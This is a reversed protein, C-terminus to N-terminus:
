KVVSCTLRDICRRIIIHRYCFYLIPINFSGTMPFDANAQLSPPFWLFETLRAKPHSKLGPGWLYPTIIVRSRSKVTQWMVSTVHIPFSSPVVPLLTFDLTVWWPSLSAVAFGWIKCLGIVSRGECIAKDVHTSLIGQSFGLSRCMKNPSKYIYHSRNYSYFFIGLSLMRSFLRVFDLTLSCANLGLDVTKRNNRVTVCM